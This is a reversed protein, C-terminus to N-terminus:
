TFWQKEGLNDIELKYARNFIVSLYMNFKAKIVPLREYPKFCLLLYVFLFVTIQGKSELGSISVNDLHFTNYESHLSIQPVVCSMSLSDANFSVPIPIKSTKLYYDGSLSFTVIM